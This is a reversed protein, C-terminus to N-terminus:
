VVRCSGIRQLAPTEGINTSDITASELHYQIEKEKLQAKLQEKELMVIRLMLDISEVIQQYEKLKNKIEAIHHDYDSSLKALRDRAQIIEMKREARVAIIHEKSHHIRGEKRRPELDTCNVIFTGHHNM